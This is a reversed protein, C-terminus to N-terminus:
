PTMETEGKGMNKPHYVVKDVENIIQSRILETTGDNSCDDIGENFGEDIKRSEEPDPNAEVEPNITEEENENRGENFSEDLKRSEEQLSAKPDPDQVEVKNILEMDELKLLTSRDM